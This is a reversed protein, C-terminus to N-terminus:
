NKNLKSIYHKIKVKNPDAGHLLSQINIEYEEVMQMRQFQNNFQFINMEWVDIINTNNGNSAYSSILDFLTLQENNKNKLKNIKEKAKRINEAIQKAKENAANYKESDDKIGNQVRVINQLYDYEINSFILRDEGILFCAINDDAYFIVEERTFFKLMSSFLTEFENDHYSNALIFDFVEIDDIKLDKKNLLCLNLFYNYKSEGVRAIDRLKPTYIKINNNIELPINALM